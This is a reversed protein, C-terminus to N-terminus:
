KVDVVYSSHSTEPQAGSRVYLWTAAVFAATVGVGLSVDAGLYLNRIHDVSSQPCSPTCRSLLENDQRGWYTLMVYGAIGALSTGMLLYPGLNSRGKPAGSHPPEPLAAKPVAEEATAEPP